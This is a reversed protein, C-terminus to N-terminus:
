RVKVAFFDISTNIDRLWHPTGKPIVLVAGRDLQRPNGDRVSAGTDENPRLSRPETITGDTVFTGTGDVVLVIDTDVGHLEVGLPKGSRIAYVRGFTGAQSEFVTGGKGFIESGKWSLVRSPTQMQPNPQRLKVTFYRISPSVERFWHPTGNPVIVVDGKGLQHAEGDNIGSGGSENPRLVRLNTVSGGTVFTAAGELVMIIDTDLAHQEVTGPQERHVALVQYNSTATRDLLLPSKAFAESGKWFSV